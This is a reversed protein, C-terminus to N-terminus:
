RKNREKARIKKKILDACPKCISILPVGKETNIEFGKQCQGCTARMMM